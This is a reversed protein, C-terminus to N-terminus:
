LSNYLEIDTSFINKLRDKTKKTLIFDDKISVNKKNPATGFIKEIESDLNDFKYIHDVIINNNKDTIWKHQHLPSVNTDWLPNNKKHQPEQWHTKCKMEFVWEELTDPYYLSGENDPVRPNYKHYYYWSKVLDVPDRIFCFSTKSKYNSEGLLKKITNAPIHNYKANGMIEHISNTGTKPISIYIYKDM